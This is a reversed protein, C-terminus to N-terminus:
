RALEYFSKYSGCSIEKRSTGGAQRHEPLKKAMKKTRRGVPQM